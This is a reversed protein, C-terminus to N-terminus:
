KAPQLRLQADALSLEQFLEKAFKSWAKLEWLILIYIHKTKPEHAPPSTHKGAGHLSICHSPLFTHATNAASSVLKDVM